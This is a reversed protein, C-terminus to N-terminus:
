TFGLLIHETSTYDDQMGKAFREAAELVQSTQSSLGVEGSWGSVKPHQNIENKLKM